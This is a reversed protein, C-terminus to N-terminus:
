NHLESQIRTFNNEGRDPHSKTRENLAEILVAHIEVTEVLRQIWEGAAMGSEPDFTTENPMSTLHRKEKWHKAYGDLTLPDHVGGIRAVFKRLPEHARKTKTLPTIEVQDDAKEDTEMQGPVIRDPVKADWKDLDIAGDLAQDFIYCTLLTNDDYVAQANLSGVGKPGGAPSGITLGGDSNLRMRENTSTSGVRFAIATPVSSGSPAGDVVGVIIASQTWGSSANRGEFSFGGVWDGDQVASLSSLSGRARRQVSFPSKFANSSSAVLLGIRASSTEKQILVDPESDNASDGLITVIATADPAGGGFAVNGNDKDIIFADMFSGGNASVKIHFDDDGTLGFEARGSFNTQFLHSATDAVTEKNVIIRCDGVGGEAVDVADFLAAPTKVALRNMADAAAGNVGLLGHSGDGLSTETVAGGATAAIWSAGAWVVLSSENTVWVLWGPKPDYYAWAGDQWAALVHDRGAWDGAGGVPVIYRDGEAPASPPLNLSRDLVSAQAVADLMRIAENHTVHKQAQAPLIYPLRFNATVDM